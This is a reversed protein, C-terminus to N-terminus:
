ATRRRGREHSARLAFQPAGEVDRRASSGIQHRMLREKIAAYTRVWAYAGTSKLFFELRGDGPDVSVRGTLFARRAPDVGEPTISFAYAFGAEECMRTTEADFDGYPFAFLTVPRGILAELLAKSGTIERRAEDRPLRSLRPHSMSHAGITVLPGVLTKVDQASMVPDLADDGGEGEWNPNRGLAGAPVFITCPMQRSALEPLANDHVSQFGDDFTIAVRGRMSAAPGEFDPGVVDARRALEDLQKAFRHRQPAPVGHYYLVVLPTASPQGLVRCAAHGAQQGIWCIASVLVKARRKISM